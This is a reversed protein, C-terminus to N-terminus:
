ETPSTSVAGNRRADNVIATAIATYRLGADEDSNPNLLNSEKHDITEAEGDKRVVSSEIRSSETSSSPPLVGNDAPALTLPSNVLPEPMTFAFQDNPPPKPGLAQFITKLQPNTSKNVQNAIAASTKPQKAELARAARVLGAGMAAAQQPSTDGAISLMPPVVRPDSVVALAVYRAMPAGGDPFQALLSLPQTRLTTLEAPSISPVNPASNASVAAYALSGFRLSLMLLCLLAAVLQVAHRRRYKQAEHLQIQEAAM